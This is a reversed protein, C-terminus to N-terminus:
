LVPSLGKQKKRRIQTRFETHVGTKYLKYREELPSHCLNTEKMLNFKPEPSPWCRDGSCFVINQLAIRSGDELSTHPTANTLKWFGILTIELHTGTSM